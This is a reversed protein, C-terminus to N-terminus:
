VQRRRAKRMIILIQNIERRKSTKVRNTEGESCWDPQNTKPRNPDWRLIEWRCSPCGPSENIAAEARCLATVELWVAMTAAALLLFLLCVLQEWAVHLYNRRGGGRRECSPKSKGWRAPPPSDWGAAGSTVCAGAGLDSEWTAKPKQM